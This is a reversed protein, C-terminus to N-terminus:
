GDSLDPEDDEKLDNLFDDGFLADYELTWWADELADIDDDQQRVIEGTADTMLGPIIVPTRQKAKRVFDTYRTGRTGTLDLLTPGLFVPSFNGLEAPVIGANSWMVLPVQHLKLLRRRCMGDGDSARMLGVQRFVNILAPQHDGFFMVVAPRGSREIYDILNRLERDAHSIAEVYTALEQRGAEDFPGTFRAATTPYRGATYPGHAEMSVAFVFTPQDTKDLEKIIRQTLEGDSPYLGDYRADEMDELAVFNEFGLHRYVEEREWFWRHYTHIAVTRYGANGFLRPLSSRQARRLYQQYPISGAPLFRTSHSTLVEFETNATGGGFVPPFLTGASSASGPIGSSRQLWRLTPLPDEEFTVGPLTTPDFFSESMVVIVSPTEPTRPGRPIGTVAQKVKARTYGAPASVAASPGNLAFAVLMGNVQSNVGQQWVRYEVGVKAALAVPARGIGVWAAVAAVLLSARARLSLPRLKWASFALAALFLVAGLVLAWTGHEKLAYGSLTLGERFLFVEWPFLPKGTNALKAAHALHLVGLMSGAVLIASVARGLLALLTLGLLSALLATVVGVMPKPSLWDSLSTQHLAELSVGVVSCGLVVVLVSVVM